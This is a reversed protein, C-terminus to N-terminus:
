KDKDHTLLKPGEGEREVAALRNEIDLRDLSAGTVEILAAIRAGEDHSIEGSIVANLTAVLVETLSKASGDTTVPLKVRAEPRLKWKAPRRNSLFWRAATVEPEVREVIPVRVVEGSPTVTIHESDYSYGVARQYLAAEVRGNAVEKSVKVAKAFDDHELRWRHITTINVGFSEALERDIAGARCLEAAREAYEPRYASPRGVPNKTKTLEIKRPNSAPV